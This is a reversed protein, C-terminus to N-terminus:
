FPLDETQVHLHIQPNYSHNKKRFPISKRGHKIIHITNWVWYKPLWWNTYWGVGASKYWRKLYKKEYLFMLVFKCTKGYKKRDHNIYGEIFSGALVDPKKYARQYPSHFVYKGLQLRELINWVPQKYWGGWCRNCTDSWKEGSYYYGVYIGTGGCTYCKKGEIFQVDYGVHKGYKKLIKNKVKYFYDEGYESNARFLLESLIWVIIRKM